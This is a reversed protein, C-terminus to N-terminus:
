SACGFAAIDEPTVPLIKWKNLFAQGQETREIAPRVYAGRWAPGLAAFRRREDGEDLGSRAELEFDQVRFYHTVLSRRTRSMDTIPSGGHLLQSHWIFVDGRRPVFTTEKLKHAALQDEAYSAAEKMEEPVAWLNGHSFRYPSIHNSGPYYGLPGTSPEIDELAIWTAVMTNSVPGPMFYTDFHYAQQSGREFNLSNIAMVEGGVLAELIELLRPSTSLARVQPSPIYLDNLKYPYDRADEPSDRLVSRGEKATSIQYDVVIPEQCERRQEWLRDVYENVSEIEEESFFGRLALFGDSEWDAFDGRSLPSQKALRSRLRSALSV